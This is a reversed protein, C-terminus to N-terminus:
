IDESDVFPESKKSFATPDLSGCKYIENTNKDIWVKVFNKDLLVIGPNDVAFRIAEQANMRKSSYSEYEGEPIETVPEWSGTALQKQMLRAGKIGHVRYKVKTNTDIVISSVNRALDILAQRGTM